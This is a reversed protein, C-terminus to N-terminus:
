IGIEENPILLLEDGTLERELQVETLYLDKTKAVEEHSIEPLVPSRSSMPPQSQIPLPYKRTGVDSEEM